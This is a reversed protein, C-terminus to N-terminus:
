PLMRVVAAVGPSFPLSFFYDMVTFSFKEPPSVYIYCKSRHLFTSLSQSITSPKKSKHHSWILARFYPIFLIREDYIKFTKHHPTVGYKSLSHISFHLLLLKLKKEWKKRANILSTRIKYLQLDTLYVADQNYFSSKHMYISSGM